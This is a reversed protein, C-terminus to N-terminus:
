KGADWSPPTGAKGYLFHEVIPNKRVFFLLKHLPGATSSDYFLTTFFKSRFGILSIWDLLARKMVFKHTKFQSIPSYTVVESLEKPFMGERKAVNFHRISNSTIGMIECTVSSTAGIDDGVILLNMKIADGTMPGAGDLFYTGDMIALKPKLLKNILVIKRDFEYHERLRMTSPVCGWQNKFALSVGTMVHTKPVPMTIFVDIDHLLLSPLNVEVNRGSIEGYITESPLDSLNVLSIGYRDRLEYLRHGKFAEEVDYAHYGGDSEGFFIDNTRQKLIIILSEMAKPTTTVGPLHTPWTLNPKIFVKAGPSIIKEWDLWDFAERIDGSEIGTSNIAKIFVKGV